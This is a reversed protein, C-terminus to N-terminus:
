RVRLAGDVDSMEFQSRIVKDLEKAEERGKEILKKFVKDPLPKFEGLDPKQQDDMAKVVPLSWTNATGRGYDV